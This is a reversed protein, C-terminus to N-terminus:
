KSQYFSSMTVYAEEQQGSGGSDGPGAGSDPGRLSSPGTSQLSNEGDSCSRDLLAALESEETSNSTTSRCDSSQTSCLDEAPGSSESTLLEISALSDSGLSGSQVSHGPRVPDPRLTDPQVLDTLLGPDTSQVPDSRVPKTKNPKCLHVLTDKPHPINPWMYTFIKKKWFIVLVPGAALIISLVSYSLTETEQRWRGCNSTGDEGEPLRFTYTNSWESWVGELEKLPIARVKVFYQTNRHLHLLDIKLVTHGVLQHTSSWIRLQFLQNDTTLYDRVYPTSVHVFVADSEQHFTVNRVSPSRPKVIKKMDVTTTIVGGRRLHVTLNFNGVPPEEFSLTNGVDKVCNM